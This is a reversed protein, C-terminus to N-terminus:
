KSALDDRDAAQPMLEMWGNEILIKAGLNVHLATETLFESYMLGLDHRGNAALSEGYYQVRMSFMDLQHFLMLKDSFPSFTSTTVMNDILKPSPLNEKNLCHDCTEIQKEALEISKLFYKRVEDNKSVQSFGLLLAKSTTSININEWLHLIELAHLARVEGIYGNLFSKKAFKIKDQIPINPVKEMLGKDLFLDNVQNLLRMTSEMVNTFFKRVDLRAMIPIAIAYLSLGAKGSYRLYHLYFEDSYLRPSDMCVDDETFGFPIPVNDHTFIDKVQQAFEESLRLANELLKQIEPDECNKIFYNLVYKAMSNGMYTAWLKGIEAANLPEKEIATNAKWANIKIPKITNM